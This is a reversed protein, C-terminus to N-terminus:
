SSMKLFAVEKETLHRFMGRPLDKKTLGSFQVRDLKIVKYGIAEFLRRVIRNKGSHLEVGAEYETGGEIFSAKDCQTKGDELVVGTILKELDEKKIPKDTEIHYIKSAQYRPHTLKKAMDGDNTFLLLGTTERDLRGVPYVRERCAKKVLSMVTKRGRPDDMTTIFGKPKNLLVYRKKEANITEGDYQVVDDPKIKYGLETIIEGNVSVVGTQILVDAERRSCIGANSLYKNLRVADENFTPLPDGKKVRQKFEIYKRKDRPSVSKEESNDKKSPTIKKKPDLKKPKSTDTKKQSDPKRRIM